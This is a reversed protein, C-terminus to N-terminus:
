HSSHEVIKGGFVLDLTVRTHSGVVCVGEGSRLLITTDSSNGINNSLRDLVEAGPTRGTM